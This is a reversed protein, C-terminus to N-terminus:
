GRKVVCSWSTSSVFFSAVVFLVCSDRPSVCASTELGETSEKGSASAAHHAFAQCGGGRALQTRAPPDSSRPRSRRRIVILHRRFLCPARALGRTPRRVPQVTRGNTRPRRPRRAGAARQALEGEFHLKRIRPHLPHWLLAGRCREVVCRVVSGPFCLPRWEIATAPRARVAMVVSTLWSSSRRAGRSSMSCGARPRRRPTAVLGCILQSDRRTLHGIRHFQTM